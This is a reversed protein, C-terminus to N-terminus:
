RVTKRTPPTLITKWSLSIDLYHSGLIRNMLIHVVLLYDLRDLFWHSYWLYSRCGALVVPSTSSTFKLPFRDKPCARRVIMWCNDRNIIPFILNNGSVKSHFLFSFPLVLPFYSSLILLFILGKLEFGVFHAFVSQTHKVM